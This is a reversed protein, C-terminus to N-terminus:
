DSGLVMNQVGGPNMAADTPAKIWLWSGWGRRLGRSQVGPVGTRRRPSKGMGLVEAQVWSEQEAHKHAKSQVLPGPSGGLGRDPVWPVRAQM